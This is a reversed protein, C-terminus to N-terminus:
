YLGAQGEEEEEYGGEGVPGSDAVTSHDEGHGPEGEDEGVRSEDGRGEGDAMGEGALGDRDDAAGHDNGQDQHIQKHQAHHDAGYDQSLDQPRLLALILILAPKLNIADHRSVLRSYLM